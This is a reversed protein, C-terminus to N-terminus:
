KLLATHRITYWVRNSETNRSHLLFDETQLATSSCFKQRHAASFSLKQFQLNWVLVEEPTNLLACICLDPFQYQSNALSVYACLKFM